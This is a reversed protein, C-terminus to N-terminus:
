YSPYALLACGILFGMVARGIGSLGQRWIVVSSALALLIALAAFVMAAAFTALSPVIELFGSRLVIISLAAVALSFWGLWSSWAALRSVPEENFPRRLM